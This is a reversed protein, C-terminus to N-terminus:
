RRLPFIGVSRRCKKLACDFISWANHEDANSLTFSWGEAKVVVSSKFFSPISM